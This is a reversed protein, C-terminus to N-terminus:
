SERTYMAYNTGPKVEIPGYVPSNALYKLISIARRCLSTSVYNWSYQICFM